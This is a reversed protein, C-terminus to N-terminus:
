GASDEIEEADDGFFRTEAGYYPPEGVNISGDPYKRTLKDFGGELACLCLHPGDHGRELECGHSNWYVRCPKV